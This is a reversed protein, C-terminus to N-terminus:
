APPFLSLPHTGPHLCLRGNHTAVLEASLLRPLTIERETRSLTAAAKPTTAANRLLQADSITLSSAGQNPRGQSPPQSDLLAPITTGLARAIRALVALTVTGEDGHLELRRITQFGIGAEKALQRQSLGAMLRHDRLSALQMTPM